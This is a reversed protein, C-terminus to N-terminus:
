SESLSDSFLLACSQIKRKNREVTQRSHWQRQANNIQFAFGDFSSKPITIETRSTQSAITQKEHDSKSRKLAAFIFNVFIESHFSNSRLNNLNRYFFFDISDVTLSFKIMDKKSTM